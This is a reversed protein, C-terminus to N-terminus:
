SLFIKEIKEKYNNNIIKRKLKLTPSLEGTEILWSEVVIKFRKIKSTKDLKTNFKETIKSYKAIVKENNILETNNTYKINKYDAWKKLFDFNPSYLAACFKQGEGVVMIQEIFASEKFVNETIQPSIYKGTSLKFLSKKRGTIKLINDNVIEGTDGTHFWGDKDIVEKTKEPNKYYGLMLNPGKFLIEDDEAIKVESTELLQGVTGIQIKGPNNVAIVPSTETLGYGENVPIRAANFIRALRPQLAAGGSVAMILENGFAERWKKFILKNAIALKTNYIFGQNKCPEYQQGLKLAWFFLAKKIGTLSLGKSYIKDYVKELVRPVAAFIHPKVERMNEGITDTSEAYYISISLSIYYYILMREFVHNLPLFSLAKEIGDPIIDHCALVNSVFNKHSLMVGKSLGTTGSTFIISCLDNENINAKINKLKEKYKEENQKGLEIIEDFNLINPIKDFSYIYEIEPLNEIIPKIIEYREKNSIIIMKAESFSLIHRYEEEGVTPYIPIHVIGVQMMGIDAFNWEPRNNSVTAIKDGTKFGLELLGYSFYNSKKVFEDSNFSEWKGNRKVSLAKKLPKNKHAYSVFDFIRKIEM